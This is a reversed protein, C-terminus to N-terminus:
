NEEQAQKIIEAFDVGLYDAILLFTYLTPKQTYNEIYLISSESLGTEKSLRYKSIDRKLREEKLLYAVKDSINQADRKNM